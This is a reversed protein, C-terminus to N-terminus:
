LLRSIDAREHGVHRVQPLSHCRHPFPLCLHISSPDPAHVNGVNDCDTETLHMSTNKKSCHLGRCCRSRNTKKRCPRMLQKTNSKLRCRKNEEAAPHDPEELLVEQQFFVFLAEGASEHDSEAQMAEKEEAHEYPDWSVTVEDAAEHKGEAQMAEKEESAPHDPEELLAEQEDEESTAEDAAEHEGEAQM